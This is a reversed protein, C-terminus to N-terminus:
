CAAGTSCTSRAPVGASSATAARAAPSTACGCRRSRRWRTPRRCHSQALRHPRRQLRRGLYRHGGAAGACGHDPGPSCGDVLAKIVGVEYAAFAGGGSLVVAARPSVAAAGGQVWRPLAAEDCWDPVLRWTALSGAIAQYHQMYHKVLFEKELQGRDICLTTPGGHWGSLRDALSVYGLVPDVTLRPRPLAHLLRSAASVWGSALGLTAVDM